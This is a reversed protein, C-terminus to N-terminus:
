ISYLSWLCKLRRQLFQKVKGPQHSETSQTGAQLGFPHRNLEGDSCMRPNHSLDGTPPYLLPWQYIYRECVSMERVRKRGGEGQRQFCIFLYFIKNLSSNLELWFFETLKSSCLIPESNNCIVSKSRICNTGWWPLVEYTSMLCWHWM